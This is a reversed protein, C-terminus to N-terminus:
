RRAGVAEAKPSLKVLDDLLRGLSRVGIPAPKVAAIPGSKGDVNIWTGAREVHNAIGICASVQPLDLAHCEFLAIRTAQPVRAIRDAGLLEVVREGLLVVAKAKMMRELIADAGLAEFGIDTLGRRNACPDGTHL